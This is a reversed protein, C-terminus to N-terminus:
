EASVFCYTPRTIVAFNQLHPYFLGWLRIMCKFDIVLSLLLLRLQSTRSDVKKGRGKTLKGRFNM